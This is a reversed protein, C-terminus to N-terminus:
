QPSLTLTARSLARLTVAIEPPLSRRIDGPTCHGRNSIWFRADEGWKQWSLTWRTGLFTPPEFMLLCYGDPLHDDLWQDIPRSLARNDLWHNAFKSNTEHILLFLPDIEVTGVEIKM